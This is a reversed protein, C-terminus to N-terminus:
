DGFRLAAGQNYDIKIQEATLAYNYVKVEDIIGTFCLSSGAGTWGGINFTEATTDIDGSQSESTGEIGDVYIRITEGDYTGVIHHWNSDWGASSYAYKNSGGASIWMRWQNTESRSQLSYIDSGEGGRVLAAYSSDAEKKAWVSLTINKTINLSADNAVEIYDEGGDFILASNYKGSTTWTPVDTGQGDGGLIGSNNNVSSDYAISGEGEDFKWHGVPKGKDYLWSIQEQTLAYNFIKIDDITGDFDFFTGTYGTGITNIIFSTTVTNKAEFAGNLYLELETGNAVLTYFTLTDFSQVSTFDSDTNENNCFRLYSGPSFWIFDQTTTIDGMIMGHSDEESMRAWFSITWNDDSGFTITSTLSVYDGDGDFELCSGYKCDAAGKWATDGVLAGDNTNASTDCVDNTGGRCTNDEMEDMKWEAVPPDCTGTFGPPCYARDQSWSPTAGDDETGVAGMMVSKGKNYDLLIEEPSLAFRYIKVEDIDGNFEDGDPSDDQAGLYLTANNTLDGQASISTDTSIEIGDVFMAISSTDTKIAALHHWTNDYFDRGVNGATDDPTWDVDDDVGFIVDGNANMYIAYGAASPPGKNVLYENSGPNDASDSRFWMSITFNETATFDFDPDDARYLYETGDGDWAMGFKGAMAFSETDNSLILDNGRGSADYATTGYGEDFKWYGAMAGPSSTTETIAPRGGMMDEIIQKQTRVYNYIKVDDIAGDWWAGFFAGGIYLNPDLVPSITLGTKDDSLVSVGNVYLELEFGTEEVNLKKTGVVHYWTGATVAGQKTIKQMATSLNDYGIILDDGYLSFEYSIDVIGKKVITRYDNEVTNTKIWASITLNETIDLSADDGANVDDEDGDFEL